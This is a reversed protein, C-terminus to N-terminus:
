SLHLRLGGRLTINEIIHSKHTFYPALENKRFGADISVIMDHRTIPHILPFALFGMLKPLLVRHPEVIVIHDAHSLLAGIQELQHYAFHHLILNCIIISTGKTDTNLNSSCPSFIDPSLQFLDGQLWDISPPLNTPKPILDIGTFTIKPAESTGSHASKLSSSLSHLLTGDGAGIEFVRIIEAPKQTLHQQYITAVTRSIWRKNGMFGNIRRLDARSKLAGLDDAPLDDLIEPALVRKKGM